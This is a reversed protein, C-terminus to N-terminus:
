LSEEPIMFTNMKMLFYDGILKNLPDYLLRMSNNSSGKLCFRLLLRFIVM